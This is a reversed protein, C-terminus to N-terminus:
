MMRYEKAIIVRSGQKLKPIIKTKNVLSLIIWKWEPMEQNKHVNYITLRGIYDIQIEKLIVM